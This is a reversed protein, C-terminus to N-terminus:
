FGPRQAGPNNLVEHMLNIEHRRTAERNRALTTLLQPVVCASIPGSLANAVNEAEQRQKALLKALREQQESQQQQFFAANKGASHSPNQSMNRQQQRPHYHQKNQKQGQNKDKKNHPM